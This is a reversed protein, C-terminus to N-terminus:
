PTTLPTPLMHISYFFPFVYLSVCGINECLFPLRDCGLYVSVPGPVAVLPLVLKVPLQDVLPLQRLAALVVRPRPQNLLPTTCASRHRQKLHAHAVAM